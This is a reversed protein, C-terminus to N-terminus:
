KEFCTPNKFKEELYEKILYFSNDETSILGSDFNIDSTGKYIKVDEMYQGDEIFINGYVSRPALSLDIVQALKAKNFTMPTHIDYNRPSGIGEKKLADVATKLARAYVSNGYQKMHNVIKDQLLGSYFKYETTKPSLIFFDDNMLIFDESIKNNKIIAKYANNINVFKNGIDQVFIFNGSYWDPKGGVVWINPNKFYKVVSRISYRLEENDGNKCIYVFDM